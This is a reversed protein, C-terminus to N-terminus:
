QDEELENLILTAYGAIDKWHDPEDSNGACIRAIKSAIMDLAETQPYNLNDSHRAIVEKITQAACAVGVFSGHTAARQELTEGVTLRKIKDGVM